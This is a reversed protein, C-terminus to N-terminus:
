TDGKSGRDRVLARLAREARVYLYIDTLTITRAGLEYFGEDDLDTMADWVDVLDTDRM